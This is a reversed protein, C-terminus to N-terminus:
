RWLRQEPPVCSVRQHASGAEAITRVFTKAEVVEPTDAGETFRDLLDAVLLQADVFHGRQWRLM